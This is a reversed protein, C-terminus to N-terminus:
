RPNEPAGAVRINRAELQPILRILFWALLVFFADLWLWHEPQMWYRGIIDACWPQLWAIGGSVADAGLHTASAIWCAAAVRLRHGTEFFSGAMVVVVTLGAM